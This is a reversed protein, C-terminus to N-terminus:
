SLADHRSGNAAPPPPVTGGPPGREIRGTLQALKRLLTIQDEGQAVLQALLRELGSEGEAMRPTLIDLIDALQRGMITLTDAQRRQETVLVQAAVDQRKMWELLDEDM